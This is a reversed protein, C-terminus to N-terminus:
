WAWELKTYPIKLGIIHENEKLVCGHPIQECGEEPHFACFINFDEISPEHLWGSCYSYSQNLSHAYECEKLHDEYCDSWVVANSLLILMGFTISVGIVFAFVNRMLEKFKM